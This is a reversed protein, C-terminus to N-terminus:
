SLFDRLSCTEILASSIASSFSATAWYPEVSLPAESPSMKPAASLALFYDESYLSLESGAPAIRRTKKNPASFAKGEGCPRPLPCDRLDTWLAATM